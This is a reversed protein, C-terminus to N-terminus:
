VLGFNPKKIWHSGLLTAGDEKAEPSLRKKQSGNPTEQATGLLERMELKLTKM